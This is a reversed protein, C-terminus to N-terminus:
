YEESIRANGNESAWIGTVIGTYIPQPFEFYGSAAIQVKYSSTSASSGFKVYLIATSDNFISAAERDQNAALLTVASASSPVSSTTANQSKPQPGTDFSSM